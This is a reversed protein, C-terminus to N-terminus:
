VSIFANAVNGLPVKGADYLYFTGDGPTSPTIQGTNATAHAATDHLTIHDVDVSRAYYTINNELGSPLNGAAWANLAKETAWGHAPIYIKTLDAPYLLISAGSYAALTQSEIKTKTALILSDPTYNNVTSVLPFSADRVRKINTWASGSFVSVDCHFFSRTTPVNQEACIGIGFIMAAPHERQVFFANGPAASLWCTSQTNDFAKWAEWGANESTATAINGAPLNNASMAPMPIASPNFTALKGGLSNGYADWVADGKYTGRDLVSGNLAQRTMARLTAGTDTWIIGKKMSIFPKYGM